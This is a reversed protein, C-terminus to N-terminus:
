AQKSDKSRQNVKWIATIAVPTVSSALAIYSSDKFTLGIPLFALVLLTTTLFHNKISFSAKM